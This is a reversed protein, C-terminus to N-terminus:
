IKERSTYITGDMSKSKQQLNGAFAIVDRQQLRQGIKGGNEKWRSEWLGFM